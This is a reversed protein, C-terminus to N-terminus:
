SKLGKYLIEEYGRIGFATGERQEPESDENGEGGFMDGLAEGAGQVAGKIQNGLSPERVDCPIVERRVCESGGECGPERYTHICEIQAAAFGAWLFIAVLVSWQITTRHMEIGEM